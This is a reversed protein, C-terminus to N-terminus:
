VEIVGEAIVKGRFYARQEKGLTQVEVLEPPLLYGKKDFSLVAFGSRWNLPNDLVYEFQPGGVDALTGSDIGYRTGRYDSFPRVLQAHLHGTCISIGAHLTNNYIAHAGGRFAHKIMLPCVQENVMISWSMPWGPFHDQLCSGRVDRMNPTRSALHREFRTDHNGCTWLRKSNPAAKQIEDLRDSVAELEDALDPKVEWAIPDHRSIGAGDLTDGNLIVYEPELSRGLKCFAKWATTVVGPWFHADSGVLICRDKITIERRKPWKPAQSKWGHKNDGKTLAGSQLILGDDAMRERMNYVNRETVGLRQAVARPSGGTEEWARIFAQRKTANPIGM